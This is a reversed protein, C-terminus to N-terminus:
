AVKLLPDGAPAIAGLPPESKDTSRRDYGVVVKRTARNLGDLAAVKYCEGLTPYNFVTEVFYEIPLGAHLIAQGTHILETAGTGICHVGLLRHSQSHFLLKLMGHPDALLQGRAIERYRAIGVEYPIKAATLQQETQGVMSLEPITYIGYPVCPQSPAHLERFMHCAAMRGQEMSTAALAPFGIVDGAAYIHPVATQLDENVKLRGRDDAALGAAALNLESTAGLRGICHLVVEARLVKGSELTAEVGDANSLDLKALMEGLKLRVNNDRLRFQLNEAIEDDLFELLRPRADVLTVRVGVAAMVSAYETGIVGGGIVLMSKPLHDLELLGNSDIVRGPTFPVNQPRAPESGCGILINDAHIDIQDSDRVVRIINPDCFSATGFLMRVGNREMQARVVEVETRIVYKARLLLDQMTIDHKAAYSAGYIRRENIASLHFAAERIAKSPITGSHLCTGGISTHRDIIAVRKGLKAAGLAAKQGAPGSGIVALDFRQIGM